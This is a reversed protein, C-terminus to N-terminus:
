GSLTVSLRLVLDRREALPPSLVYIDPADVVGILYSYPQMM